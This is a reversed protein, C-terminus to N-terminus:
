EFNEDFILVLSTSLGRVDIKRDLSCYDCVGTRRACTNPTECIWGLLDLKTARLKAPDRM